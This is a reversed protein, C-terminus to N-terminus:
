EFNVIVGDMAGGMALYVAQGVDPNFARVSGDMFLTNIRNNAHMSGALGAGLGRGASTNICNPSTPNPCLGFTTSSFGHGYSELSWGEAVTGPYTLGGASEVFGITNSTGDTIALISQGTVSGGTWRFPGSFADSNIAGINVLYNTKGASRVLNADTASAYGLFSSTSANLAPPPSSVTAWTGAAPFHKGRV